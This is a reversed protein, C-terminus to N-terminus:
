KTTQLDYKKRWITFFLLNLFSILLIFLGLFSITISLLSNFNFYHLLKNSIHNTFPLMVYVFIPSLIYLSFTRISIVRGQMEVPTNKQWITQNSSALMGISCGLLCSFIYIFFRDSLGIFFISIGMLTIFLQYIIKEDIKKTNAAFFGSLLLGIGQFITSIVLTKKDFVELIYPTIIATYSAMIASIFTFSILYIKLINKAWVWKLIEKYDNKNTKKAGNTNIKIRSNSAVQKLVYLSYIQTIISFFLAYGISIMQYSIAGLIPGIIISIGRFIQQIGNYKMLEEKDALEPILATMATYRFENSIAIIVIVSVYLLLNFYNFSTIFILVVFSSITALDSIALIYEKKYKDSVFGAPIALLLPVLSTATTNIIFVSYSNTKDFLWLNLMFSSFVGSLSSLGKSIILNMINNSM